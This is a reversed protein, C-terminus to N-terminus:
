IPCEEGTLPRYFSRLSANEQMVMAPYLSGVLSDLLDLNLYIKVVIQEPTLQYLTRDEM